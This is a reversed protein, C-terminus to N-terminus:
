RGRGRDRWLRLLGMLGLGLAKFDAPTRAAKLKRLLLRPRTYFRRLFLARLEVMEDRSLSHPVFALGQFTYDEARTSLEGLEAAREHLATGPFPSVAHLNAVDPDLRCAFAITALVDARTQGPIGLLFPTVVHLGAAKAWAVAQRIQQPTSGKGLANLDRQVGSEAGFLISWCGARAMAALLEPDVQNVCSSAFWPFRWGRARIGACLDLVRQRDATFADDLFRIERYGQALCLEIEALVNAVSRLRIERAPDLQFCYVCRNKCGRSTMMTAVPAARYTGPPPLYLGPDALLERAPMALGDLDRVLDRPATALPEGKQSVVLGAVEALARGAEFASALEPLTEEGEGLAVADLCDGGEILAATGRATPHPGGAITFVAQDQAKCARATALARPWLFTNAHIGLLGPRWARARALIEELTLFSGDWLRVEHGARMLAAGLYLMGLPQWYNVQLRATAAPFIDEPRWPPIVLACRM